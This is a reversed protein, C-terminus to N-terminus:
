KEKGIIKLADEVSRAIGARYGYGQMMEIFKTQEQSVVGTPTKVEIFAIQGDEGM